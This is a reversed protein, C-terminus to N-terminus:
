RAPECGLDQLRVEASFLQHMKGFDYRSKASPLREATGVREDGAVELCRYAGRTRRPGPKAWGSSLQGIISPTKRMGGMM